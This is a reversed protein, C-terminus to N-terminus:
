NTTVNFERIQAWSSQDATVRFRVFRADMHEALEFHIEVQNKYESLKTWKTGDVSM